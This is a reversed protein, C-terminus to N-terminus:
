STKKRRFVILAGLSSIAITAPEPIASKASDYISTNFNDFSLNQDIHKSGTFVFAVYDYKDLHKETIDFSQGFTDWTMNGTGARPYEKSIISTGGNKKNWISSNLDISQGNKLLYVQGYNYQTNYDNYLTDISWNHSGVLSETLDFALLISNASNAVKNTKGKSSETLVASGNSVTFDSGYWQATSDTGATWKTSDSITTGNEFELLGASALSCCSLLLSAITFSLVRNIQM